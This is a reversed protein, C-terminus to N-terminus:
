PILRRLMAGVQSDFQRTRIANGQLCRCGLMEESGTAWRSLILARRLSILSPPCARIWFTKGSPTCSQCRKKKKILPFLIWFFRAMMPGGAFRWKFPTESAPRHHGLMSNQSQLKTIKLPDVGTNILFGKNKHNEPPFPTLGGAGGGGRSGCM